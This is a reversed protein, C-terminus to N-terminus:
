HMGRTTSFQTTIGIAAFALLILFYYPQLNIATVIQILSITLLYAGMASTSVIYAPKMLATAVGALIVGIVLGILLTQVETGFYQTTIMMTSGLTIGAVCLKEITFGLCGLLVGGAIPLLAQYISNAAIEPVANNIPGMLYTRMIYHGIIFWAIFFTIKKIRYGAFLMVLGLIITFILELTEM